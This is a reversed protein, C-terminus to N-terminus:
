ASSADAQINGGSAPEERLLPSTINCYKHRRLMLRVVGVQPPNREGPNVEEGGNLKEAERNKPENLYITVALCLSRLSVAPFIPGGNISLCLSLNRDFCKLFYSIISFRAIEV